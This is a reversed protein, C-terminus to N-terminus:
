PGSRSKKKFASLASLLYAVLLLPLAAYGELGGIGQEPNVLEYLRPGVILLMAAAYLVFSTILIKTIRRNGKIGAYIMAGAGALLSMTGILGHIVFLGLGILVFSLIRLQRVNDIANLM